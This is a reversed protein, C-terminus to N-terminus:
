GGEKELGKEHLQRRLAEDAEAGEELLIARIMKTAKPQSKTRLEYVRGDDLKETKDDAVERQDIPGLLVPKGKSTYGFVWWFHKPSATGEVGEQTDDKDNAYVNKGYLRQSLTSLKM